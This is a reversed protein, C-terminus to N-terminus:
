PTNVYLGALERGARKLAHRILRDVLDPYSVGSAALLKPYMSIATFGPLTNVENILVGGDARVFFDIRAMGECDLARFARACLERVRKAVAAPLDAPVKVEAGNEDLYKAEYSYFSHRNTPVIEGAVSVLLSGDDGELVGCEVERGKVFEEVLIKRDHAFAEELAAEFEEKTSAKGVGVSSGLRAPKVFLARGLEAAVEDFSPTDLATFARFRAIPLGADRMLRKAADKDMAAASGLVGSGVYPVGALEAMGQVTGDEGFPGHLVPFVVDVAAQMTEPLAEAEAMVILRGGGGPLLAVRPGAQPVAKPFDGGEAACLLWSGDRTIAIPLVEYRRKDLARFVNGASLVSVDHEASRGGFLLGVRLRRPM